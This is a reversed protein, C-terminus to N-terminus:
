STTTGVVQDAWARWGAFAEPDPIFALQPVFFLSRAWDKWAAEPLPDQVGMGAYQEVVLAAWDGFELGNTLPLPAPTM